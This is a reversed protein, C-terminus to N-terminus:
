PVLTWRVADALVVYAAPEADDLIVSYTDGAKFWHVGLTLWVGGNIQQNVLYLTQGSMDAVLFRAETSRNGGEPYFLQVSYQGSLEPVFSWTATESGSGGTAHFQYDDGYHGPTVTGITWSGVFLAAPNDVIVETVADVRNGMADVPLVQYFWCPDITPNDPDPWALQDTVGVLSGIMTPDNSRYLEYTGMIEPADNQDLLVEDWSWSTVTPQWCLNQVDAPPVTDLPIFDVELTYPGPYQTGGSDTWTDCSIYYIGPGLLVSFTIDARAICTQDSECDTLLHPDIDVGTGDTVTVTVTGPSDLVLRYLVEPGAENVDPACSYWNFFAQKSSTDNSNTYPLAPIDIVNDCPSGVVAGFFDLIDAMTENRAAETTITEFPFGFHVVKFDVGDYQIGANGGSGGSYTLCVTSGGYGTIRDPYDANYEGFSNDDFSFTTNGEFISGTVPLVTYTGADDSVYDAKLYNNYFSVGSGMADLEYGIEAGSVFLNGGESLYAQVLTQETTDFTKDTTSEEGLFWIVVSYDALNVLYNIVTENSCSDFAVGYADIARAYTILYRYSNMMDVYGRYLDNTSYPDDEIVCMTHNMRDFGAVVLVQSQASSSRVALTETPFSEGGANTATVRYYYVQGPVVSNDTYSTNNVGSLAVGNGFGYGDNSKYVKYGTAADGLFNDGTNSPPSNWSLAIGGSGNNRVLLSTPPEPLLYYTSQGDRDAFYKVIGQYMARAVIQRFYPNKLALADSATDHFAMEFLAAPMESNNSPNIEGFNATHTGRNVWSSNYGARIDNILENHVFNRLLDGGPVGSFPDDWDGSTYAFSSTGTGTDPTGAANSHWSIYISDEWGENEWAAYKPMANVTSSGCTAAPCGMYNAHLYGSEEYRPWDSPYPESFPTENGIGGGFRVADAIVYNATEGSLNSITVSGSAPNNGAKFYYPGIHKFTHGDLEMNQTWVTEGGTHNVTIKVDNANTSFGPYWVYVHYYGAEPITPTFTATATETSSTVARRYSGGYGSSSITEWTGSESYGAGDNDVIVLNTNMDRERCNYVGAGANWLYHLLYTDVAEANSLDEVVNYTNGRQTAWRGLTSSYYWGHGPSVFISKGSLEGSPQGQGSSPPQGTARDMGPLQDIEDPKPPIDVIDTLFHNPSYYRGDNEDYLMLVHHRLEPATMSITLFLETLYQSKGADFDLLYDSPVFIYYGGKSGEVRTRDLVLGDPFVPQYGLTREHENPGLLTAEAIIRLREATRQDPDLITWEIELMREDRRPLSTKYGQEDLVQIYFADKEFYPQVSKIILPGQDAMSEAVFVCVCAVVLLRCCLKYNSM